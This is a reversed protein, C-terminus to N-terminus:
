ELTLDQEAWAMREWEDQYSEFSGNDNAYALLLAAWESSYERQCSVYGAGSYRVGDLIYGHHHTSDDMGDFSTSEFQGAVAEVDKTRPGDTWAVDVTSGMSYSRSRVSFKIGPFAVKLASRIKKATEAPTEYITEMQRRTSMNIITAM